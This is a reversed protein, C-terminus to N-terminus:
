GDLDRDWLPHARESPSPLHVRPREAPSEPSPPSDTADCVDRWDWEELHTLVLAGLTPEGFDDGQERYAWEELHSLVADRLPDTPETALRSIAPMTTITDSARVM